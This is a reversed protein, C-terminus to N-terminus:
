KQLDPMDQMFCGPLLITHTLLILSPAKSSILSATITKEPCDPKYCCTIVYTLMVAQGMNRKCCERKAERECCGQPVITLSLSLIPFLLSHTLMQMELACEFRGAVREREDAM